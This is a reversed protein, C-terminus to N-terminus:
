SLTMFTPTPEFHRVLPYISTLSLSLTLPNSDFYPCGTLGFDLIVLVCAAPNQTQGKVTKPIAYGLCSTRSSGFDLSLLDFVRVVYSVVFACIQRPVGRILALSPYLSLSLRCRYKGGKLAM